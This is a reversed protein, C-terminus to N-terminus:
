YIYPPRLRNLAVIELARSSDGLLRAALTQITDSQLVLETTISQGNISGLPTPNIPNAADRTADGVQNGTGQELLGQTSNPSSLGSVSTASPNFNNGVQALPSDSTVQSDFNFVNITLQEFTKMMSLYSSEINYIGERAGGWNEIADVANSLSDGIQEAVYLPTTVVSVTGSVLDQVANVVGDIADFISGISKFTGKIEGVANSLENISNKVNQITGVIDAVNKRLGQVSDRITNAVLRITVPFCLFM